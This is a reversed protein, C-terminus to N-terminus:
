NKVGLAATHLVPWHLVQTDQTCYIDQYVKKQSIEFPFVVIRSLGAPMIKNLESSPLFPLVWPSPDTPCGAQHKHPLAVCSVLIHWGAPPSYKDEESYHVPFAM